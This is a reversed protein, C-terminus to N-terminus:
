FLRVEVWDGALLGGKNLPVKILGDANVLTYILNSKGFVPTALLGDASDELRAPLYDERGSESAINQSLKAWVLGRRPPTKVGQLHYIAPVGFMDFQVMASVPNGPLGLVPKGAVAGVITPKGPRTAVGHLLVGPEGLSEIVQVTMDRVSVSSGASIVLMDCQALLASAATELGGFDDPIIGGFVPIGGAQQVLGAVTYSNIDRIQGPKAQKEPSIVEDGTALIGVRPQQTVTVATIGLALLGGVDQPRLLHGAPLIEAGEEVDEGVQLVNQGVAVSKLVEIEFPFNPSQFVQGSSASPNSVPSRDGIVSLQNSVVSLQGSVMQTHEIQVVADATEPIMGGTHVIAAQGVTLAVNAAQGMPVEGVVQLFAPLSESAGFSDAARVAYGDMTSRRFQPLNHPALVATATIRGNAQESPTTQPPLVATLHRFLLARAEDPPLVNFFEPM